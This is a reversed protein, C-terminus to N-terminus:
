SAICHELFERSSELAAKKAVRLSNEVFARDLRAEFTVGRLVTLKARMTGRVVEVQDSILTVQRPSRGAEGDAGDAGDVLAVTPTPAEFVVIGSDDDRVVISTTGLELTGASTRFLVPPPDGTTDKSKRDGAEAPFPSRSPVDHNGKSVVVGYLQEAAIFHAVANLCRELRESTGEAAWAANTPPSALKSPAQQPNLRELYRQQAGWCHDLMKATAYGYGSGPLCLLVADHARALFEQLRAVPAGVLATKRRLMTMFIWTAYRLSSRLTYSM